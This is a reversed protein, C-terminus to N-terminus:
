SPSSWAVDLTRLRGSPLVKFRALEGNINQISIADGVQECLYRNPQDIRAFGRRQRFYLKVARDINDNDYYSM